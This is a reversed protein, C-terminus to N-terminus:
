LIERLRRAPDPAEMLVSGVLAGAAGAAILRALDARTRVGSLALVPRDPSVGALARSTAELDVPLGPARLDRNNVGILDSDTELARKLGEADYVELLTELGLKHAHAIFPEVGGDALADDHIDLILLVASAGSRRAADLQRASVVFDKWLVPVGSGVARAVHAPSGGFRANEALVSVGRAGAGAFARALELADAGPRLAGATPSAPKVEAIVPFTGRQAELAARLSPVDHRNADPVEYYGAQVRAHAEQAFLPLTPRQGPM